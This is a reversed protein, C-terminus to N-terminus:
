VSLSLNLCSQFLAGTHVFKGDRLITVYECAGYIEELKHSIFVIAKGEKKLSDVITMLRGIETNSLASTPEDMIIIRADRSVAKVIEVLQQKAM